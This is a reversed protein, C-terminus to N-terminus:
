YPCSASAGILVFVGKLFDACAETLCFFRFIVNFYVVKFACLVKCVCFHVTSQFPDLSGSPSCADTNSHNGAHQEQMLVLLSDCGSLWLVPLPPFVLLIEVSRSLFYPRKVAIQWADDKRQTGGPALSVCMMGITLFQLILTAVLQADTPFFFYFLFCTFLCYTLTPPSVFLFHQLPFTGLM